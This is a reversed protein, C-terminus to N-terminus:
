SSTANISKFAQETMGNFLRKRLFYVKPNSSKHKYKFRKEPNKKQRGAHLWGKLISDRLSTANKSCLLPFIILFSLISVSVKRLVRLLQFFAM